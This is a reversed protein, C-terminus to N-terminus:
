ILRIQSVYLGLHMQQESIRRVAGDEKQTVSISKAGGFDVDRSWHKFSNGHDSCFQDVGSQFHDVFGASGPKLRDNGVELDKNSPRSSRRKKPILDLQIATHDLGEQMIDVLAEFPAQLSQLYDIREEQENKKGSSPAETEKSDDEGRTQGLQENLSTFANVITSMGILPVMVSRLLKFMEDIDDANLCGLAIERKAFALDGYMKGHVASLAKIGDKLANAERSTRSPKRQCDQSPMTDEKKEIDYQRLDLRMVDELELKQIYVSQAKLSAQLAHIYAAADRFIITRSSIPFLLLNCATALAFGTM